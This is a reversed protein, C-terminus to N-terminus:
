GRDLDDASLLFHTTLKLPLDDGFGMGGSGNRSEQGSTSPVQSLLNPVPIAPM